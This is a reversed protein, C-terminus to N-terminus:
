WLGKALQQKLQDSTYYETEEEKALRQLALAGLREECEKEQQQEIYQEMSVYTDYPVIVAKCSDRSLLVKPKVLNKLIASMNQRFDTISVYMDKFEAIM